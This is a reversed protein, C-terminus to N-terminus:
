GSIAGNSGGDRFVGRLVLYSTSRIVRRQTIAMQFKHLIHSHVRLDTPRQDNTPRRDDINM